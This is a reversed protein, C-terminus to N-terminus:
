AESVLPPASLTSQSGEEKPSLRCSRFARRPVSSSATSLTAGGPLWRPRKRAAPTSAAATAGSVTKEEEQTEAPQLKQGDQAVQGPVTVIPFSSSIKNPYLKRQASAAAPGGPGGRGRQGPPSPRPPPASFERLGASSGLPAAAPGLLLGGFPPSPSPLPPSPSSPPM